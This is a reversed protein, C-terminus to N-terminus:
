LTNDLTYNGVNDGGQWFTIGNNLCQCIKANDQVPANCAVSCSRMKVYNWYRRGSINPKGWINAQYGYVDFFMDLKKIMDLVMYRKMVYPFHGNINHIMNDNGTLNHVSPPTNAQRAELVSLNMSYQMADGLASVAGSIAGGKITNKGGQGGIGETVTGFIGLVAQAKIQNQALMYDHYNTSSWQVMPPSGCSMDYDNRNTGKYQTVPHIIISAGDCIDSYMNWTISNPNEFLGFDYTATKGQQNSLYMCYYPYNFCKNNRPVYGNIDSHDFNTVWEYFTNYNENTVSKITSLSLKEGFKSYIVQISSVNEDAVSQCADILEKLESKNKALYIHCGYMTGNVRESTYAGAKPGTGPDIGKPSKIIYWQEGFTDAKETGGYRTDGLPFPEPLKHEWKSDSMAHQREIYGYNISGGDVFWTQFVDLEFSIECCGNDVYEVNTIFAYFWKAPSFNTNQFMLYNCDFCQEPRLEVRIGANQRIYTYDTLTHKVKSNFYNFQDSTNAFYITNQYTNDLKVGKLLKVTSNPTTLAM